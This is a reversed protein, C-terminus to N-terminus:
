REWRSPEEGVIKLIARGTANDWASDDQTSFCPRQDLGVLERHSEAKLDNLYVSDLRNFNGYLSKVVYGPPERWKFSSAMTLFKAKDYLIPTHIDFHVTPLGRAQLDQGTRLLRMGYPDTRGEALLLDGKNYFPFDPAHCPRCLFHDDNMFLFKESIRGDNCAALVKEFIRSDKLLGLNDVAYVHEVGTIRTPINVSVIFVGGYGTLYRQVSRLSYRLERTRPPNDKLVYVLDVM